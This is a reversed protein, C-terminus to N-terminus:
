DEASGSEERPGARGAGPRVESPQKEDFVSAAYKLVPQMEAAIVDAEYIELYDVHQGTENLQMGKDVSRRLALPPDGDAGMVASDGVASCRMQLGTILRGAHSIVFGTEDPAEARATGAHLDSWQIALRPGLIGYAKEVIAIRARKHEQKRQEPNRKGPGLVPLGPASLSVFQDPFTAAYFQFVEQWAGLYKDVTYSHNLWKGHDQVNNPLSMEASVSTPGDAAIMRFAPSRGYRDSVRKLFAFWRALYVKDWPMPLSEVAGHGPGYQVPFTETEAGEKAWAPAFFGPFILLQVWKKGSEAAAFVEDLRSWDLQGQVPEIDRWNIQVAVGRILPNNFAELGLRAKQKGPPLVVVLGTPKSLSNSGRAREPRRPQGDQNESPRGDVEWVWRGPARWEGTDAMGQAHVSLLTWSMLGVSLLAPVMMWLRSIRM